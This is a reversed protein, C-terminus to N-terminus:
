DIQNTPETLRLLSALSQSSGSNKRRETETSFYAPCIKRASLSASASRGASSPMSPCSGRPVLHTSSKFLPSGGLSASLTPASQKLRLVTSKRQLPRRPPPLLEPSPWVSPVPTTNPRVQTRRLLFLFSLGNQPEVPLFGKRGLFHNFPFELFGTVAM